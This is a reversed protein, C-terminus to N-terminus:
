SWSDFSLSDNRFRADFIGPRLIYPLEQFLANTDKDIKNYGKTRKDIVLRIRRNELALSYPDSSMDYNEEFASKQQGDGRDDQASYHMQGPLHKVIPYTELWEYIM